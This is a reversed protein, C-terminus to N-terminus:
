DDDAASSVQTEHAEQGARHRRRLDSWQARIRWYPRQMSMVGLIWGVLLTLVLLYSLRIQLSDLFYDFTVFDGNRWAFAFGLGAILFVVLLKVIRM